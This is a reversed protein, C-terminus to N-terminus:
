REVLQLQSELWALRHHLEYLSRDITDVVLELRYSDSEPHHEQYEAILEVFEARAKPWALLWTTLNPITELTAALHEFSEPQTRMVAERTSGSGIFTGSHRYLLLLQRYVLLQDFMAGAGAKGGATSSNYM